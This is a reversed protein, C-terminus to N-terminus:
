KAKASRLQKDVGTIRTRYEFMADSAGYVKRVTAKDMGIRRIHLLASRPLLLCGALWDAEAEQKKDYTRLMLLNDPTIDIRGATHGIVVHSLEHALNSATRAHSHTPNLIILDKGAASVTIASWSDPDDKILVNLSSEGFSPVENVNWILIGLKTALAWPDLPDFPELNMEGRHQAAVNECWTKFGREYM